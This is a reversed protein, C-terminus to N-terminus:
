GQWVAPGAARIATLTMIAYNQPVAGVLFMDVMLRHSPISTQSYFRSSRLIQNEHASSTSILIGPENGTYVGPISVTPSPTSSGGNVVNLQACGIYFQAGGFSSASHLAIQEGRLLYQRNMPSQTIAM